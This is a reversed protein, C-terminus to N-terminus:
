EKIVELAKNLCEENQKLVNEKKCKDDICEFQRKHQNTYRKEKSKKNPMDLLYKVYMLSNYSDKIPKLTDEMRKLTDPDISNEDCEEQYAKYAKDMQEFSKRVSNLYEEFHKKSM